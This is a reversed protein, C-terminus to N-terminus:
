IDLLHSKGQQAIGAKMGSLFRSRLTDSMLAKKVPSLKLFAGVLSRMASQTLSSPNDFIQYQLTGKELCQLIIREFATEPHIVRQDRKRLKMAQAKCKLACVGCGFCVAEDVKPEKKKRGVPVDLPAMDIVKIPCYKACRGCGKCLAEDSHAIFNSTVVVNPYNFKHIGRLCNCCCSCCHCVFTTNKKINDALFVLSQEKSRAFIDSMEGKSVERAMGHRILYDAAAGFSSCVDLPIDCAKEGAHLKEHRCSCTGISLKDGSEIYSTAKEYDLVEIYEETAGEHPLARIPAIREGNGANAGYYSGTGGLYDHFLKGWEEINLNDGTRMMTFEFIGVIMPSPMYCYRNGMWFDIVLGKSALSEMIGKLKTPEYKTIKAIRNISSFTYPMKVYVDAEELSYLSKVIKHLTENWPAKVSLNDIKKGVKRYIDKGVLHGM